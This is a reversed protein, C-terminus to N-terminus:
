LNVIHIVEIMVTIGYGYGRRCIHIVGIMVTIGDMSIDTGMAWFWLWVACGDGYEAGMVLMGECFTFASNSLSCIGSFTSEQVQLGPQLAMRGARGATGGGSAVADM